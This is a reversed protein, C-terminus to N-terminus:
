REPTATVELEFRHHSSPDDITFLITPKNLVVVAQANTRLQRIVPAGGSTTAETGASSIEATLEMALGEPVEELHNDLNVGVDVYNTKEADRVPFRSGARMRLTYREGTSGSLAFTRQSLVKGEDSEKLVYGLRYFHRPPNAAHPASEQALLPTATLLLPALFLLRKM